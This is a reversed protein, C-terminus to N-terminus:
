EKSNSMIFGDIMKKFKTNSGFIKKMYCMAVGYVEDFIDGDMIKVVTKTGDDWYIITAPNNFIINKPNLSKFPPAKEKM